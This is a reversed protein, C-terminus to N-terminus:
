YYEKELLKIESILLNTQELQTHGSVRGGHWCQSVFWYDQLWQFIQVRRFSSQISRVSIQCRHCLYPCVSHCESRLSGILRWNKKKMNSVRKNKRERESVSERGSECVWEKGRERVWVREGVRVCESKGEREWERGRERLRSQIETSIFTLTRITGVEWGFCWTHLM